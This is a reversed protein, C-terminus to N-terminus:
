MRSVGAPLECPEAATDHVSIPLMMSDLTWDRDVIGITASAPGRVTASPTTLALAVQVLTGPLVHTARGDTLRGADAPSLALVVATGNLGDAGTIAVAGAVELPARRVWRDVIDIMARPADSPATEIVLPMGDLDVAGSDAALASLSALPMPDSAVGLVHFHNARLADRCQAYTAPTTGVPPPVYRATGDPANHFPGDTVLLIARPLGAPICAMGVEGSACTASSMDAGTGDGSAIAYLAPVQAEPADGGTQLDFNLSLDFAMADETLGILELPTQAGTSYPLGRFEGVLARSVQLDTFAAALEPYLNARESRIADLEDRMTGTRDLAVVLAARQVRAELQLVFRTTTGPIADVCRTGARAADDDQGADDRDVSAGTRAGCAVAFLAAVVVARSVGV